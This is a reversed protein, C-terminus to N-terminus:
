KQMELGSNIIKYCKAVIECPRDTTIDTKFPKFITVSVNSRLPNFFIKGKPLLRYTNNIAVCTISIPNESNRLIKIFGYKFEQLNGDSTRTGEPYLIVNLGLKIALSAIYLSQKSKNKDNRDIPICRTLCHYWKNFRGHFHETKGLFCYSDSNTIRSLCFHDLYSQHNSLIIGISGNNSSSVIKDGFIHKIFVRSFIQKNIFHGIPSHGFPCIDFREFTCNSINQIMFKSLKRNANVVIAKDALKLMPLDWKSNGFINYCLKDNPLKLRLNLKIKNVCVAKYEYDVINGSIQGTCIENADFELQNCYINQEPINIRSFFPYLFLDIGASVIYILGSDNFRMLGALYLNDRYYPLIIKNTITVFDKKSIGKYFSYLYRNFKGSDQKYLFIIYPSKLWLLCYWLMFRIIGYHAFMFKVLTSIANKKFLTGDFDFIYIEKAQQKIM